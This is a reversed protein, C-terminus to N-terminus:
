KVPPARGSRTPTSTSHYSSTLASVFVLEALPMPALLTAQVLGDFLQRQFQCMSCDRQHLDGDTSSHPGGSGLFATTQIRGFPVLGHSHVTEVVAVYAIMVLLAYVLPVRYVKQLRSLM